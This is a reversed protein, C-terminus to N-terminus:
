PKPLHVVPSNREPRIHISIMKSSESFENNRDRQHREDEAFDAALAPEDDSKEGKEGDPRQEHGRRASSDNRKSYLKEKQGQADGQLAGAALMQEGASDNEKGSERENRPKTHFFHKRTKARQLRQFHLLSLARRHPVPGPFNKEVM